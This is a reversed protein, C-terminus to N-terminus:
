IHLNSTLPLVVSDMLDLKLDELELFAIIWFFFPPPSYCLSKYMGLLVLKFNLTKSAM